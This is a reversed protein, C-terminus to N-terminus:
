RARIASVKEREKVMKVKEKRWQTLSGKGKTKGSKTIAEMEAQMADLDRRLCYWPSNSKASMIAEYKSM